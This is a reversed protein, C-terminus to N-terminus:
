REQRDVAEETTEERNDVDEEEEHITPCSMNLSPRPSNPATTNTPTPTQIAEAVSICLGEPERGWLPLRQNFSRRAALNSLLDDDLTPPPPNSPLSSTPGPVQGTSEIDRTAPRDSQEYEPPKTVDEPEYVPLEERMPLAWSVHRAPPPHPISPLEATVPLINEPFQREQRQKYLLTILRLGLYISLVAAVTIGVAYGVHM